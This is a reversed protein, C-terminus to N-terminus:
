VPGREEILTMIAQRLAEKREEPSAEADLVTDAYSDFPGSPMEEDTSGEEDPSMMDEAYMDDDEGSEEPPGVVAFLGGKGAM